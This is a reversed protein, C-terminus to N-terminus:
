SLPVIILHPMSSVYLWINHHTLNNTDAYFIMSIWPEGNEHLLQFPSISGTFAGGTTVSSCITIDDPLNDLNSSGSLVAFDTVVSEPGYVYEGMGNDLAPMAAAISALALLQLFLSNIESLEFTSEFAGRM